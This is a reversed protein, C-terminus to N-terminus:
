DILFLFRYCVKVDRETGIPADCKIALHQKLSIDHNSCVTHCKLCLLLIDHSKHDQLIFFSYCARYKSCDYKVNKNDIKLTLVKLFEPFHKRYEHPVINKRLFSESNGCVVCVNAKETLYYQDYETSPRGSPEFNLRVAMPSHSVVYGRGKAVYRCLYCDATVGM